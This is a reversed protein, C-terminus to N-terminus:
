PTQTNTRWDTKGSMFTSHQLNGSAVWNIQDIGVAIASRPVGTNDTKGAITVTIPSITVSNNQQLTFSGSALNATVVGSSPVTFGTTSALNADAAVESGASNYVRFGFMPGTSSAQTAFMVDGGLAQVSVGFTATITSTSLTSGSNNTGSVSISKSVLTFVPGVKRVVM